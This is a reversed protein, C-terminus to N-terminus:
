KNLLLIEKYFYTGWTFIDTFITHLETKRIGLETSLLHVKNNCNM